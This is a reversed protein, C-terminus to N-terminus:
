DPEQTAYRPYGVLIRRVGRQYLWEISNRVAWEIYCKIQKRWKEFMRRLRKSSKFNYRNLM